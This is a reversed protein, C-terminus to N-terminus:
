LLGGAQCTLREITDDTRSNLVWGAGPALVYVAQKNRGRVGIQAGQKIPDDLPTNLAVLEVKEKPWGLHAIADSLEPVAAAAAAVGV